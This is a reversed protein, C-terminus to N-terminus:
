SHSVCVFHAHSHSHPQLFRIIRNKIVPLFSQEKFRIQEASTTYIAM